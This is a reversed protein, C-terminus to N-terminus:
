NHPAMRSTGTVNVPPKSAYDSGKRQKSYLALEAPTLISAFEVSINRKVSRILRGTSDNQMVAQIQAMEKQFLNALTVQRDASLNIVSGIDKVKMVVTLSYNKKLLATDQSQANTFGISFLILFTFLAKM